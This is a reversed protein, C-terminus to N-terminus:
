NINLSTTSTRYQIGRMLRWLRVRAVMMLCAGQSIRFALLTESSWLKDEGITSTRMARVTCITNTPAACPGRSSSCRACYKMNTNMNMCLAECEEEATACYKINM